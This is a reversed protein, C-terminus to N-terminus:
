FWWGYAFVGLSVAMLAVCVPKNWEWDRKQGMTSFPFCPISHYLLFVCGYMAAKDLAAHLKMGYLCLVTAALVFLWETMGCIGLRKAGQPTNEYKIPYMRGMWPYFGGLATLAFALGAGGSPVAYRWRGGAIRSGLFSGLTSVAIMLAGGQMAPEFGAFGKSLWGSICLAILNFAAMVALSPGEGWDSQPMNTYLKCNTGTLTAAFFRLCFKACGGWGVYRSMDFFMSEHLGAAEARTKSKMNEDIIMAAVYQCGRAQLYEVAGKYLKDAVGTGRYAPCVFGVDFYGIRKGQPFEVIKLFAGGCLAGNEEIVIGQSPKGVGLREFFTFCAKAKRALAETEEPRIERLTFEM